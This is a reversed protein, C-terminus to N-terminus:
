RCNEARALIEHAIRKAAVGMRLFPWQRDNQLIATELYTQAHCFSKKVTEM